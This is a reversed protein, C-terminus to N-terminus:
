PVIAGYFGRYDEVTGGYIHRIKYTLKDNSFMSGVNPQDQVFLEPEQNGDLFGIEITPIDAPDAALYWNNADTWTKVSIIDWTQRLVSDPATPNFNGANPQVTLEYAVDELDVPVIMFRPPIGLPENSGAEQQKLMALRAAQLSTKDLAAVGLNAHNAHFLAVADYIAANTALFDFVFKYMTRAASRALKTPIRRILSVDDNKIAELTIDETGGRKAPAYTAEEDSPTALAGYPNSEAVTPLDGYGGLRVRRQTRFDGLPVITVLKRWSDLGSANYEAVMRRTIADGLISAFSGSQVSALLSTAAQLNGTVREDGTVAAYAAKFSHVKGEFFDGLMQVAKDHVDVVVRTEGMGHVLGSGALKDLMEKELKIASHLDEIEFLRNGFQAALKEQVAAPLKSAAMEATLFSSCTMRHMKEMDPTGKAGKESEVTAETQGAEIAAVMKIFKGNNTPDYVVDVEVATIEVPEKVKKGAVMKTAAKATVDFSLGFLAPNGREHSDVLGDRLWKASKLIYLDAEIGTGTDGANKLWGVIERVSKGFPKKGAQHQSENLAFVRAGEILPLAAVLPERPWNIRGDKGMGYQNVQVRWVYGYDEDTPQGAATMLHMAAQLPIYDVQRQVPVAEGLTVQGDESLSYPRQYYVNGKKGGPGDMEYVVSDPYLEALYFRSDQGTNLAEELAQRVLDRIQEFSLQM